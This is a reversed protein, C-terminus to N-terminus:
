LPKLAAGHREQILASGGLTAVTLIHSPLQLEEKIKCSNLIYGKGQPDNSYIVAAHIRAMSYINACVLKSFENEDTCYKKWYNCIHIVARIARVPPLEGGYHEMANDLLKEEFREPIIIGEEQLMQVIKGELSKVMTNKGKWLFNKQHSGM